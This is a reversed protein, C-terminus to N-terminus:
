GHRLKTVLITVILCLSVANTYYLSPSDILYGYLIWSSIGVTMMLYMGLSLSKTHKERLAKRAQSHLRRHNFARCILWDMRSEDDNGYRESTSHSM